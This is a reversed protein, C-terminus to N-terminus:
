NKRNLTIVMNKITYILHSMYLTYIKNDDNDDDDDNNDSDDDAAAEHDGYITMLMM